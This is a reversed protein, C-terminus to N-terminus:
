GALSKSTTRAASRRWIGQRFGSRCGSRLVYRFSSVLRCSALWKGRCATSCVQQGIIGPDAGFRRAWIAHSLVVVDRSGMPDDGTNITRGLLPQTGLVDFFGGTVEGAPVQEAAGTGTLAFSDSDYAALETFSSNDRRWDTFDPPSVTGGIRDPQKLTTKYIRVLGDPDPYPLPRLLVANVAGFIATTGGIGIALTLVVVATFSPKRRLSRLAHKIDQIIMEVRWQDWRLWAAHVIAGLARSLSTIPMPRALRAARAQTFAFEARWERLWDRRLDHPVMPSAVRLLFDCWRLM